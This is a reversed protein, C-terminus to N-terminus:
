APIPDIVTPWRHLISGLGFEESYAQGRAAYSHRLAEDEHLLDQITDAWVQLLAPDARHDATNETLLPMLLGYSAYEATCLGGLPAPAEPALIERPGTPCDTSMVPLGCAMAEVLALPLGEFASPFVFMTAKALYKFPNVQYGLFYVDYDATMPQDDWGAWARLGLQECRELLATRLHGDGLLVLKAPSHQRVRAMVDLLPAQNKQEALRASTILVPFQNFLAQADAEISEAALRHVNVLDISNIITTCDQAPLAFSDVMESRIDRSVSVVHDALRYLYPILVRQRLKAMFGQYNTDLALKSGHLLTIRRDGAPALVNVYDAGELSSITVDIQHQRKAQRLRWCRRLFNLIKMPASGGGSVKLDILLNGTPFAVGEDTNFVCEIVNYQKSLELSLNYFVRQAGGFDLNPILLLLNKRSSSHPM